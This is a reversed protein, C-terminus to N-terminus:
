NLNCNMLLFFYFIEEYQNIDIYQINEYECMGTVDIEPLLLWTEPRDAINSAHNIDCVQYGRLVKEQYPM